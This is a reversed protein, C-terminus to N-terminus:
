VRAHHENMFPRQLRSALAQFSKSGDLSEFGNLDHVPLTRFSVLILKQLALLNAQKQYM